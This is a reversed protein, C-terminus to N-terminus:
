VVLPPDSNGGDVSGVSSGLRDPSVDDCKCKTNVSGVASIIQTLSTYSNGHFLFIELVWRKLETQTWTPKMHNHFSFGSWNFLELFIFYFVKLVKFIHMRACMNLM